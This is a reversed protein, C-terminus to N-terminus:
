CEGSQPLFNLHNLIRKFVKKSNNNSKIKISKIKEALDRYIKTQIKYYSLPFEDNIRGHGVQSDVMLVISIDAKPLLRLTTGYIIIPIYGYYLLNAWIDSYFRDCLVVDYKRKMKRLHFLYGIWIDIFAPIFWLKPLINNNKKVPGLKPSGTSKRLYRIFPKLLFYGFAFETVKVQKKEFEFHKKLLRCQTSKGANDVGSLSIIIGM